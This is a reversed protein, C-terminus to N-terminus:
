LCLLFGKLLAFLLLANLNSAPSLIASIIDFYVMELYRILYKDLGEGIIVVERVSLKDILPTTTFDSHLSFGTICLVINSLATLIAKELLACLV